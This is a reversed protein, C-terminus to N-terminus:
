VTTSRPGQILPKAYEVFEDILVPWAGEEDYNTMDENIMACFDLLLNWTDKPISRKHHETLFDSWLKLFKFRGSLVINWYAIAMELDLGKQGPNKAYNFTFQYFDKFKNQDRIEQELGPCKNKLKEVSDCGLDAMGTIFEEKTFECQTAAKFKWAILLVTRSEPSLNLDELFKMVGDVTMKDDENQDKYRGWLQELRKRDVTVRSDCSYRDPTQFFNDVAVDLKWDFASLCTIASKEGTQTFAIFQRVKDKQSSKLKHM